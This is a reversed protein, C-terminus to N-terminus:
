RSRHLVVVVQGEQKSELLLLRLLLRSGRLRGRPAPSPHLDLRDQLSQLVRVIRVLLILPLFLFLFLLPHPVGLALLFPVVLALLLLLWWWLLLLLIDEPGELHQVEGGHLGHECCVRLQNRLPVRLQAHRQGDGDGGAEVASHLQQQRLLSRVGAGQVQHVPPAVPVRKQQGRFTSSEQGTWRIAEIIMAVFGGQGQCWWGVGDKKM